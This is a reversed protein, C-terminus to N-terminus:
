PHVEWLLTKTRSIFAVRSCEEPDPGTLKVKLYHIGEADIRHGLFSIANYSVVKRDIQEFEM